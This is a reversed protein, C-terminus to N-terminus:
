LVMQCLKSHHQTKGLAILISAGWLLEAFLPVILLLGTMFDGFREQLPDLLTLYQRSRMPKAFVISGVFFM